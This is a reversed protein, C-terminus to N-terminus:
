RGGTLVGAQVVGDLPAFPVGLLAAILPAVDTLDLVPLVVGARVGAGWAVFGTLIEPLDTPFHGHTGGTAGRVADGTAVSGMRVGNAGTLAFPVRPDAGVADLEAREVIRYLRRHAAPAAALARRALTIAATDRADRLHLFAAGGEAHFMARWGDRRGGRDLLGAAGLWVNPNVQLHTNVFGHDGTIIFTTRELIGARDAAEVLQGVARDLAAVARTVRDGTRGAEHQFHDTGILHVATLAPRRTELLHAAMAGLRDDRTLWDGSFNRRADLRGTADRELEEVLGPTARARMPALRDVTPDLSWVEPVLFDVPAGVTVPWMVAASTRGAARLAGFLTPVQISDADWYWRGTAGAPEFPTNYYIGHRAPTAGTVLTTHSPYTVTPFVGRVGLAHVGDRAMQQITPAGFSGPDRYFEPRLGDISVLVVHASRPPQSQQAQQAQASSPLAAALVLVLRCVTWRSRTPTCGIMPLTPLPATM